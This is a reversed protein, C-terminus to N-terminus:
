GAARRRDLRGLSRWLGKRDRDPHDLTDIAGPVTWHSGQPGSIKVTYLHDQAALAESLGPNSMGVGLV